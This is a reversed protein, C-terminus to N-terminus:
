ATFIGVFFVFPLEKRGLPVVILTPVISPPLDCLVTGSLHVSPMSTRVTCPNLVFMAKEVDKRGEGQRLIESRTNVLKKTLNVVEDDNGAM